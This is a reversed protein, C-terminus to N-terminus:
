LQHYGPLVLALIDAVAAHGNQGVLVADVSQFGAAVGTIQFGSLCLFLLFLFGLGCFRGRGLRLLGPVLGEGCALNQDWGCPACLDVGSERHRLGDAFVAARQHQKGVAEHAAPVLAALKRGHGVTQCLPADSGHSDIEGAAILARLAKQFVVKLVHAVIQVRGQRVGPLRDLHVLATQSDQSVAHAPTQSREIQVLLREVGCHQPSGRSGVSEVGSGGHARGRFHLLLQFLRLGLALAHDM